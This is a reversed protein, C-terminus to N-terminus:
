RRPKAPHVTHSEEHSVIAEHHARRGAQTLLAGCNLPRGPATDVLPLLAAIPNIAGLALAAAGREILGKKDVTFRPKHFTGEIHLPGRTSILSIHKPQTHLLLHIQENGFNITGSGFINTAHTDIVFTQTRMLGHTMQLRIVACHIREKRSGSLWHALADGFHLQALAVVVDSVSGGAMAAGVHGSAHAAFAAFSKGTTHLAMTGGIRGTNASRFKLKPFLTSLRIGRAEADAKLALPHGPTVQIHAAVTGDALGFTLPDLHLVGGHVTIHTALNQLSYTGSVFHHARYTIDMNAAKLESSHYPASSLVRQPGTHHAQVPIKGGVNAPKAGAFGSLDALTLRESHLQGRISLGKDTALQLHGELDSHGIAGHVPRLTWTTGSRILHGRVAFAATKPLPIGFIAYLAAIDRGKIAVHMQLHGLAPLGAITGQASGYTEGIHAQLSLPYPHKAFVLSLVSGGQLDFTFPAKRFRGKGRATIQGSSTTSLRAKVDIAKKPNVFRLRGRKINLRGLAYTKGPSPSTRGNRRFSWNARGDPARELFLVPRDLSLVPVVVRGRLMPWLKIQVTLGRLTLLRHRPDWHPNAVEVRGLRLVPAASWRITLPGAIQVRRHLHAGLAAALPRRLWDPDSLAAILAGVLIAGLALLVYRRKPTSPCLPM